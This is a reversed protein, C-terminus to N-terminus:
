ADINKVWEDYQQLLEARTGPPVQMYASDIDEQSLGEAKLQHKRVAELGHDALDAMGPNVRRLMHLVAQQCLQEIERGSYGRSREVLEETSVLSQHGQRRLHIDFIAKRAADDPLPVYIKMGQFRSLIGADILWPFNTAGITLIFNTDGHSELGDLESLFTSVIRREAGSEGSGRPPTLAEFEDLYVVSPSMRRAVYYLASVLKTSEGFYKSLLDSVKVNFFTAELNGATAAALTTKGTGPPGYLLMNRPAQIQVGTPKQALAMVYASKIANKTDELGGIDKWSVNPKRILSQIISSYDDEGAVERSSNDPPTNVPAVHPARYGELTHVKEDLKDALEKRQNRVEAFRSQDAYQRMLEAAKRYLAIAEPSANKKEAEQAQKLTRKYVSYIQAGLDTRAM